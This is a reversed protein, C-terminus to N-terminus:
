EPRHLRKTRAEPSLRTGRSGWDRDAKAVAAAAELRDAQARTVLRLSARANRRSRGQLTIRSAIDM